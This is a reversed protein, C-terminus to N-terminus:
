PPHAAGPLYRVFLMVWAYQGVIGLTAGLWARQRWHAALRTSAVGCAVAVLPFLPLLMRLEASHMNAVTLDFALYAGCWTVLIPDLRPSRVAIVTLAGVVVLLAIIGIRSWVISGDVVLPHLAMVGAFPALSGHHWAAETRAYAGPVGTSWWAIVPWLATGAVTLVLGGLMRWWESPAVPDNARRRWRRWVAVAYVLALPPLIPRTLGLLLAAATARGWQERVLWLLALALLAMALAESYALQLSPAMPLAAWVAVVALTATRPIRIELLQAIACAAVVGAVLNLLSAAAAFNTATLQMVARTVFPFGPYFAWQNQATTGNLHLPLHQPYGAVAISRYWLADWHLTMGLYPTSSLWTFLPQSRQAVLIVVASVLRMGVYVLAADVITTRRGERRRIRLPTLAV